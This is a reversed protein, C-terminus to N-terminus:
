MKYPVISWSTIALDNSKSHKRAEDLLLNLADATLAGKPIDMELYFLEHRIGTAIPLVLCLTGLHTYSKKTSAM